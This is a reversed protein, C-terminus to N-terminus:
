YFIKKKVGLASKNTMLIEDQYKLRYDREGDSILFQEGLPYERYPISDPYIFKGDELYYNEFDKLTKLESEKIDTKRYEKKVEVDFPDSQINKNKLSIKIGPKKLNIVEEFKEYLKNFNEDIFYEVKMLKGLKNSNNKLEKIFGKDGIISEIFMGDERHKLIFINDNKYGTLPTNENLNKNCRKSHSNEHFFEISIPLANDEDFLIESNYINFLNKENIYTVMNSGDQSAKARINNYNIDIFDIIIFKEYNILLHYKMLSLPENILSFNKENRIKDDTIIYNKLIYSDLQKYGKTLASRETLNNIVDSNFRYALLYANNKNLTKENIYFFRSLFNYPTYAFINYNYSDIIRIKQHYTLYQGLDNLKEILTIFVNLYNNWFGYMKEFDVNYYDEYIKSMSDLLILNTFIKYTYFDASEPVFDINQNIQILYFENTDTNKYEKKLSIFYKYVENKLSSWNQKQFFYYMNFYFNEFKSYKKDKLNYEYYKKPIAEDVDLIQTANYSIKNKEKKATFWVQSSIIEKNTIKKIKNTNEDSPVNILIFGINNTNDFSNYHNILYEEKDIKIKYIYPVKDLYNYYCYEVCCKDENINNLFININFLLNNVIFFKFKIESLKNKIKIEFPIIENFIENKFKFVYIQQPSELKNEFNSIIFRDYYNNKEKYDPIKINLLSYNNISIKKNFILNKSTYILTKDTIIDLNYYFDGEKEVRIKCNIIILLEFLDLNPIQDYELRILRNFKDFLLIYKEKKNKLVVKAYLFALNKEKKNEIRKLQYFDKLNKNPIKQDIISFIQLENAKQIFTLNNCLIDEGNIMYFKLYIFDNIKIILKNELFKKNIFYYNYSIPDFLKLKDQQSDVYIFVNEQNLNEEFLELSNISNLLFEPKFNYITKITQNIENKAEDNLWINAYIKIDENTKDLYFQCSINQKEELKEKTKSYIGKIEANELRLNLCYEGFNEEIKTIEYTFSSTVKDKKFLTEFENNLKNEEM